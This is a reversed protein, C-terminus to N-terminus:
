VQFEVEMPLGAEKLRRKLKQPEMSKKSRSDLVDQINKRSRGCKPCDLVGYMDPVVRFTFKGGASIRSQRGQIYGEKHFVRVM